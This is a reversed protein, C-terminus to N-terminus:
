KAEAKAAEPEVMRLNVQVIDDTITNGRMMKKVREGPASPKFGPGTSVLIRRKVGGQLDPRMPFGSKDSGGRIQLKLGPAGIREGEFTEGIKLGVIASSQESTLALLKSTGDKPNSIIAKFEPM